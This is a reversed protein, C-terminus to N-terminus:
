RRLLLATLCPSWIPRVAIIVICRTIRLPTRRLVHPPLALHLNVCTAPAPRKERVSRPRDRAACCMSVSSSPPAPTTLATSSRRYARRCVDAVRHRELAVPAKDQPRWHSQGQAPDHRSTKSAPRPPKATVLASSLSATTTFSFPRRSIGCARESTTRRPAAAAAPLRLCQIHAGKPAQGHGANRTLASSM